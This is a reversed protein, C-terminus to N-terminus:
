KTEGIIKVDDENMFLRCNYEWELEENTMNRIGKFGNEFWGTIFDGDLQNYIAYGEIEALMRKIADERQVEIVKEESGAQKNSQTTM